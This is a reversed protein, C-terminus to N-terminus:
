FRVTFGTNAAWDSVRQVEEGVEFQAGARVVLEDNIIFSAGGWWIWRETRDTTYMYLTGANGRVDGGGVSVGASGRWYDTHRQDVPRQTENRNVWTPGVTAYLTMDGISDVMALSASIDFTKSSYPFYEQKTTGTAFFGLVSLAWGDGHRVRASGRVILDGIGGQIATSDSRSVFSQEVGVAFAARLPFTAGLRYISAEAPDNRSFDLDGRLSVRRPSLLFAPEASANEYVGAAGAKMPQNALIVMSAALILRTLVAIRNM